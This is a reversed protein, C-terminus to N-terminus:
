LWPKGANLTSAASILKKAQNSSKKTNLNTKTKQKNNKM